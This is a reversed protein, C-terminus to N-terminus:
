LLWFCLAAIGTPLLANVFLSKASIGDAGFSSNLISFGAPNPANAIVTLGGGVVSGAVLAYKSAESLNAM